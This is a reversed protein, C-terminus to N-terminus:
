ERRVMEIKRFNDIGEYLDTKSILGYQELTINYAGDGTPVAEYDYIVLVDEDLVARYELDWGLTKNVLGSHSIEGTGVDMFDTGGGSDGEQCCLRDGILRWLYYYSGPRSCLEKEAGTDLDISRVSGDDSRSVYLRDGDVIVSKEGQNSVRYKETVKGDGLNLTAFVEESNEYLNKYADDDFMEEDSIARGYDTGQLVLARGYCGVVKWSVRDGFEMSCVESEEKRELDLRVLKRESSHIYSDAGNREASLKKTVVYIGSDDGLVFDELTVSGDFAYVKERGTGDLNARYLVSPSGEIDSLAEEEGFVMDMHMSGDDDMEKSLLYLSDQYTFLLTSWLPFDDYRLVSQCDPSDHSCGANSCLYVERLAQFDMYMLHSGYSGDSLEVMDDEQYYYGDQTHCGEDYMSLIRLGDGFDEQATGGSVGAGNKPGEGAGGDGGAELPVAEGLRNGASDGGQGDPAPGACGGLWMAAALFLAAAKRGTKRIRKKEMM